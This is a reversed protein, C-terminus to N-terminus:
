ASPRQRGNGALTATAGHDLVSGEAFRDFLDTPRTDSVLIEHCLARNLEEIGFLTVAEDRALLTVVDENVERGDLTLPVFGKLFTLTDLEVRRLATFAFFRLVDAHDSSM